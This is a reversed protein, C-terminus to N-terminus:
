TEDFQKDETYRDAYKPDAIDPVSLFDHAAAKFDERKIYTTDSHSSDIYEIRRISYLSTDIHAVQSKIISLIPYFKEKETKEKQKCGVFIVLCALYVILSQRM